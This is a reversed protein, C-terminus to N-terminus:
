GALTSAETGVVFEWAGAEAGGDLSFGGSGGESEAGAGGVTSESVSGSFTLSGATVVGISSGGTSGMGLISARSCNRLLFSKIAWVRRALNKVQIRRKPKTIRGLVNLLDSLPLL